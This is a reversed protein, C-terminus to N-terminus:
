DNEKVNKLIYDGRGIATIGTRCLEIIGYPKLFEIFADIKSSQGTLELTVSAPSLDVVSARFINMAHMIDSLEGKKSAVKVLLLERIVTSDLDMLEVTIVDHLKRLQKVIQEKVYDDGKASITIRSIKGSETEGVSLSDINFGRRSFLSSVRTLVGAENKVLISLLFKTDM